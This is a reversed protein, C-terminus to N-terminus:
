EPTAAASQRYANSMVLLKFFKKMDWRQERFEIALWDLLELHSPQEGTVGFDGSTRVIGTGFVEQWFRNVTVRATLPHEPLLLWQAFGLRNHPLNAPMPPLFDPTDAKVPEKRKDYEGRNLIFASAMDGKEQMVLAITGRARIANQEQELKGVAAFREQYPADKNLLWWGFLENKEADTRQEAPKALLAGFRTANALSEVEGASLARKYIRLDHIQGGALPESNTRQGIKFSVNTKITASLKDSEIASEQLKGNYYIKVGAAKSSGDYAVAVHTWENAPIQNKGVVKLANDPWSNIIHTGVQRRQVWFDWGRYKNDKDM